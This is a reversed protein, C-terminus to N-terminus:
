SLLSLLFNSSFSGSWEHGGRFDEDGSAARLFERGVEGCQPRGSDIGEGHLRAIRHGGRLAKDEGPATVNVGFLVALCGIWREVVDIGPSVVEFPIEERAGLLGVDRDEGNAATKLQQVNM